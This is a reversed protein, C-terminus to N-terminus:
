SSRQYDEGHFLCEFSLICESTGVFSDSVVLDMWHDAVNYGDPCPLQQHKLYTVSDFPTGFYVVSGEALLLLADFGLFMGSSPQHISMIVTKYQVRVLTHLM